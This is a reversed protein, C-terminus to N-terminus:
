KFQQTECDYVKIELGKNSPWHYAQRIYLVGDKIVMRLCLQDVAANEEVPNNMPIFWKECDYIMKNLENGKVDKM